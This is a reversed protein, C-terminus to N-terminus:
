GSPSRHASATVLFIPLHAVRQSDDLERDARIIDELRRVEDGALPLGRLLEFRLPSPPTLRDLLDVRVQFGAAALLGPLRRGISPDAGARRLAAQWLATTAIKDPFEILGGYDPEIAALVGGPALVRRIERVASDANMWLLAFQCFVLDFSGDRFPLRAADCAVPLIPSDRHEQAALALRNLDAAVVYGSCRRALERTVTQWGCGLDLLSRCHAIRIRRLLRSRAPALWDAQKALLEPPPLSPSEFDSSTM